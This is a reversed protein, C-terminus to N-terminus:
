AWLIGSKVAVKTGLVRWLLILGLIISIALMCICGSLRWIWGWILGVSRFVLM